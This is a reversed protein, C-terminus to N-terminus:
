KLARLLLKIVEDSLKAVSAHAAKNNDVWIQEDPEFKYRTTGNVRGGKKMHRNGEHYTGMLSLPVSGLKIEIQKHALDDLLAQRNTDTYVGLNNDKWVNPYTKYLWDEFNTYNMQGMEGLNNWEKRYQDGIKQDLLDDYKRQQLTGYKNYQYQDLLNKINNWKNRWELFKNTLSQTREVNRIMEADTEAMNALSNNESLKNAVAIQSNINADIKDANLQNIKQEYESSQATNQQLAKYLNAQNAANAAYYNTVDSTVPKIGTQSQLNIYSKQQELASNYPSLTSYRNAQIPHRSQNAKKKGLEEQRRSGIDNAIFQFVGLAPEILDYRPKADEGWSGYLGNEGKVVNSNFKSKFSSMKSKSITGGIQKKYVRDKKWGGWLGNLRKYLEELSITTNKGISNANIYLSGDKLKYLKAINGKDDIIVNAIFTAPIKDQHTPAKIGSANMSSKYGSLAANNPNWVNKLKPAQNILNEENYASNFQDYTLTTIKGDNDIKLYYPSRIGWPNEKPTNGGRPIYEGYPNFNNYYKFYRNGADDTAIHSLAASTIGQNLFFQNLDTGDDLSQGVSWDAFNEISPTEIFSNENYRKGQNWLQRNNEEFKAMLNGLESGSQISEYAYPIGNYYVGWDMDDRDGPQILTLKPVIATQQETIEEPVEQEPNDDESAIVEEVVPKGDEGFGIIKYNKGEIYVIDGIKPKDDNIEGDGSDSGGSSVPIVPVSSDSPKSLGYVIKFNRLFDEDDPNYSYGHTSMRGWLDNIYNNAAAQKDEGELSNLWTTIADINYDSADYKSKDKNNIYDFIYNIRSKSSLNDPASTSLYYNGKSDMNFDLKLEDSSLKNSKNNSYSNIYHIANKYRQVDNNLLADLRKRASSRDKSLKKATREDPGGYNSQNSFRYGNYDEGSEIMDLVGQFYDGYESSKKMLYDEFDKKVSADNMDHVVDGIIVKGYQHKEIKNGKLLKRVQSM